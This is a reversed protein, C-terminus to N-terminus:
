QAGAVRDEIIVRNGVKPCAVTDPQLLLGFWLADVCCVTSMTTPNIARKEKSPQMHYLFEGLRSDTVIRENCEQIRTELDQLYLLNPCGPNQAGGRESSVVTILSNFTLRNFDSISLHCFVPKHEM